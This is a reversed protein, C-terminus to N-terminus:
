PNVGGGGGGRPFFIIKTEPMRKIIKPAIARKIEANPKSPLIAKPKPARYINVTNKSNIIPANVSANPIKPTIFALFASFPCVTDIIPITIQEILTTSRISTIDRLKYVELVNTPNTIPNTRGIRYITPPFM